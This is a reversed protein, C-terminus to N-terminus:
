YFCEEKLKLEVFWFSNQKEAYQYTKLVKEGKEIALPETFLPGAFAFTHFEGNEGCPDINAPLANILETTIVEGIAQEGLLTANTCCIISRFGLSIFEEVLERTDRKWLPFYGQMGFRSLFNERYIKLDELFIDGFIVVEVDNAKYKLLVSEWQQEYEENTADPKIYMKELPLGIRKAQEEALEERVGHMSVRKFEASVTTVLAVVELRKQQLVRYLALASDKGGSWFMIAKKRKEVTQM